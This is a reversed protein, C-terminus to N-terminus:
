HSRYAEPVEAVSRVFLPLPGRPVVAQEKGNLSLQM